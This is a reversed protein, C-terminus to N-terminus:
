PPPAEPCIPSIYSGLKREGILTAFLDRTRSLLHLNMCSHVNETLCFHFISIQYRNVGLFSFLPGFLCNEDLSFVLGISNFIQCLTLFMSYMELICHSSTVVFGTYPGEKDTWCIKWFKGAHGGWFRVINESFPRWIDTLFHAVNWASIKLLTRLLHM